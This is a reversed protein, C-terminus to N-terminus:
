AAVQASSIFWSGSEVDVPEDVWPQVIAAIEATMPWVNMIWGEPTMEVQGRLPEIVEPPLDWSRELFEGAGFKEVMNVVLM